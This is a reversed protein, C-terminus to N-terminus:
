HRVAPVQPDIPTDDSYRLRACGTTADFTLHLRALFIPSPGDEVAAYLGPERHLIRGYSALETLCREQIEDNQWVVAESYAYGIQGVAMLTGLTWNPTVALVLDDGRYGLALTTIETPLPLAKLDPRLFDTVSITEIAKLGTLGLALAKALSGLEPFRDIGTKPDRTGDFNAIYRALIQEPSLAPEGRKFAQIPQDRIMRAVHREIETALSAADDTLHDVM